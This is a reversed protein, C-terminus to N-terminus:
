ELFDKKMEKRFYTNLKDVKPQIVFKCYGQEKNQNFYDNHYDEAPYFAEFEDLETVIPNQFVSAKNLQTIFAESIEKQTDSTYFIASRYHTGKDAGQQNLTTPDHTAFFVELLQQFSIVDANFTIEVVEAHGTRETTVERYAPNKIHGGSFGSRVNVVGELRQFVAETCWFCGGAFVAIEKNKM